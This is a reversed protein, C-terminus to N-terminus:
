KKKFLLLECGFKFVIFISKKLASCTTSLINIFLSKYQINESFSFQFGKRPSMNRLFPLQYSREEEELIKIL